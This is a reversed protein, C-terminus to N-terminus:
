YRDASGAVESQCLKPRRRRLATGVACFGIVMTAWTATEPVGPAAQYLFEISVTGRVVPGILSATTNAVTSDDVLTATIGSSLLSFTVPSVFQDLLQPIMSSYHDDLNQVYEERLLTGVPLIFAPEVVFLGYHYSFREVRVFPV